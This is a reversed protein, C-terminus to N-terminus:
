AAPGAGRTQALYWQGPPQLPLHPDNALLPPAARRGAALPSGSTPASARRRSGRAAGRGAPRAASWGARAMTIPADAPEGPWLDALQDPSLRQALRARLLEERWNGSLDLAM